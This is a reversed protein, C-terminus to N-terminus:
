IHALISHDLSKVNHYQGGAYAYIGTKLQKNSERWNNNTQKNLFKHMDESHKFSKIHLREKFGNGTRVTKQITYM